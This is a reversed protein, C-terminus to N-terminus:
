SSFDTGADFGLQLFLCLVDQAPYSEVDAVRDAQKKALDHRGFPQRELDAM